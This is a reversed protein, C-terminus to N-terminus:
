MDVQGSAQMWFIAQSCHERLVKIIKFNSYKSVHYEAKWECKTDEM